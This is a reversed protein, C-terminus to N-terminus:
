EGDQSRESGESDDQADSDIQVVEREDTRGADKGSRHSTGSVPQSEKGMAVSEHRAGTAINKEVSTSGPGGNAYGKM